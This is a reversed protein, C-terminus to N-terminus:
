SLNSQSDAQLIQTTDWSAEESPHGPTVRGAKM